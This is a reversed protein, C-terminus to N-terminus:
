ETGESNFYVHRVYFCYQLCSNTRMPTFIVSICFAEHGTATFTLFVCKSDALFSDFHCSIVFSIINNNLVHSFVRFTFSTSFRDQFKAKTAVKGAVEALERIKMVSRYECWGVGSSFNNKQCPFFLLQFQRNVLILIIRYSNAVVASYVYHLSLLLLLLLLLILPLILLLLLLPGLVQLVWCHCYCHQLGIAAQM